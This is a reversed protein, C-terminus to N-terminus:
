GTMRELWVLMPTPKGRSDTIRRENWAKWRALLGDPDEGILALARRLTDPPMGNALANAAAAALCEDDGDYRWFLWELREEDLLLAAAASSTLAAVLDGEHGLGAGPLCYRIEDVADALQALLCSPDAGAVQVCSALAALGLRVIAHCTQIGDKGELLDTFRARLRIPAVDEWLTAFLAAPDPLRIMPRALILAIRSAGVDALPALAPDGPLHRCVARMWDTFWGADAAQVDWQLAAVALPILASPKGQNDMWVPLTGPVVGATPKDAAAAEIVPSGGFLSRLRAPETWGRQRFQGSVIALLTERCELGGPNRFGTSFQLVIPWLLHALWEAALRPGDERRALGECIAKVSTEVCDKDGGTVASLSASTQPRIEALLRDEAELLLMWAATSGTRSGAAFIPPLYPLLGSLSGFNLSQDGHLAAAVLAPNAIEGLLNAAREPNGQAVIQLVRMFAHDVPLDRVLWNSCAELSVPASARAIAQRTRERDVFDAAIGPDDGLRKAEACVEAAAARAEDIKEALEDDAGERSFAHWVHSSVLRYADALGHSGEPHRMAARMAGRGLCYGAIPDTSMSLDEAEEPHGFEQPLRDRLDRWSAATTPEALACAIREAPLVAEMGVTRLTLLWDALLDAAATLGPRDQYALRVGSLIKARRASPDARFTDDSM